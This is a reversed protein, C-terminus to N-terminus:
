RNRDRRGPRVPEGIMARHGGERLLCSHGENAPVRSLVPLHSVAAKQYTSARTRQDDPGRPHRAFNTSNASWGRKGLGERQATGGDGFNLAQRLEMASLSGL